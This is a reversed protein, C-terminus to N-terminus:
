PISLGHLTSYSVMMQYEKQKGKSCIPCFCRREKSIAFSNTVSVEVNKIQGVSFHQLEGIKKSDRKEVSYKM